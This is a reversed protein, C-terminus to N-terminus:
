QTLSIPFEESLELSEYFSQALGGFSYTTKNIEIEAGGLLPNSHPKSNNFGINYITAIIGPYKDIPFGAKEWQKEIQKILIAGYLYSYYRDKDDTMREFRENDIDSTTFDLINEFKKGLYWVSSTDKLNDEIRKATEQKIGMVGWSFQNQNGLIKLPAFIQKFIERESFFLRMQEVVLPTVIIRSPVGTEKSVRDIVDKDKAIAIKLTQWEETNIWDANKLQEKFYGRQNDIVGKTNTWGMSISIYGAVLIFGIIAFVYVIIKFLRDM